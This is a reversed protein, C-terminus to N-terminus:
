NREQVAKIKALSKPAVNTWAMQLVSKLLSNEALEQDIETWGQMGWRGPIPHAVPAETQCVMDQQEPKLKVYAFGNATFGSFIKNHVRFDVKGFHSKEESGPLSLALQRFEDQTAMLDAQSFHTLPNLPVGAMM